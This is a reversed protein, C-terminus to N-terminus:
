SRVKQAKLNIELSALLTLADAHDGQRRQHRDWIADTDIWDVIRRKKLDQINEHVVAKLDARERLGRDFDIYNISPSVGWNIRPFLRKMAARARLKQQRLSRRWRVATLPLGFNNKVPLSFLRPYTIKLIEKYLCQGQRYRRPANLIFDIWEPYLFPTCYEAGSLLVLPKIYSQQRIGFDLCDDYYLDGLGCPPSLPLSDEPKFDVPVLNVSRCFCNRHAFRTKALDWALSTDRPLHAGSLAEGMFGSWYVADEGYEKWILAVPAHQFLATRGDVRRAIDSLRDTGYSYDNLDFTSHKTGVIRAISNGIEYDHTGPVGFTYTHMRGPSIHELLGALIARSDLGGSLPVVIERTTEALCSEIARRWISAGTEVLEALSMSHADGAREREAIIPPVHFNPLYGYWLFAELDNRTM